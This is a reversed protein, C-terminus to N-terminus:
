VARQEWDLGDVGMTDGGVRWNTEGRGGRQIFGTTYFGVLLSSAKATVHFEFRSIIFM